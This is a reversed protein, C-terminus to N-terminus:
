KVILDSSTSTQKNSVNDKVTLTMKYDGSKLESIDFALYNSVNKRSGNYNNKISINYAKSTGFLGSFFDWISKSNDKKQIDFSVSYNTHEDHGYSLNYIEYYTYVNESKDFTLTPNPIITVNEKGRENSNNNPTIKYAQELSSCSLTDNFDNLTYRFNYGFLRNEAPVRIDMSIIYKQRKLSLKDGNIFLKNFIFKGSRTVKYNKDKKMLLNMTSDFISVEVKLSLSDNDNLVSSFEDLPVAYDLFLLNKDGSERFQNLSIKANLPKIEEPWTFSDTTLGREATNVGEVALQNWTGRYLPDVYHYRPDWILLDNLVNPNLIMPVLKWYGSPAERDILFYFVMRPHRSTEYYLWAMNQQGMEELTTSVEDPKGYRIYIYGMDNFENNLYYWPPHKIIDLKNADYIKLRFGDYRYNKEAYILRRYHEILRMNYPLSPLPNKGLWFKEMIKKLQTLPISSRLIKFERENIILEFDKLLLAADVRNTVADVAKWYTEDAKEYKNEQVYVKVLSLYVPIQPLDAKEAILSDFIKEAKDLDNNRRYFEGLFYTDYVCNQKELFSKVDDNNENVLMVDYLHFIGLSANERYKNIKMQHSALEASEIYDHRYSKLVAFQYFTDMFTSDLGIVKKFHKEASNWRLIQELPNKYIGDERQGIAYYYNAVINDPEKDLLDGFTDIVDGWEKNNFETKGKAIISDKEARSLKDQSYLVQACMILVLILITNKNQYLRMLEGM